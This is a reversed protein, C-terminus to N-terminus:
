PQASKGALTFRCGALLQKAAAEPTYSSILELCRDAVQDTDSFRTAVAILKSALDDTDDTKFTFGTVEDVVLEPVCGCHYSVVVPCGYHLAENVVLGWPESRSPLVLCTARTYVDGLADQGLSGAFVVSENIGLAIAQNRLHDVQPGSGVLELVAAPLTKLVEHFALLLTDLAKETALRGVYLFRPAHASLADRVRRQRAEQANYTDPLAAAQIRHFIRAPDAGYQLLLEKSRQGYGFYVDCAGFFIRKFWGKIRTQPRDYLTSDCFVGRAKRTLMAAMLMAWHEPRDYGPILVLDADSRFVCLFLTSVLKSTPVQEYSGPFLLDHPYQHYDLEVESLSKREGSTDAIQTFRVVTGSEMAVKHLASFVRAKYRSWRINHYIHIKKM